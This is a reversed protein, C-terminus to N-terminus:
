TVPREFARLSFIRLTNEKNSLTFFVAWKRLTVTEGIDSKKDSIITEGDINMFDATINQLRVVQTNHHIGLKDQLEQFRQTYLDRISARNFLEIKNGDLMFFIVTADVLFFNSYKLADRENWANDYETLFRTIDQEVKEEKRL